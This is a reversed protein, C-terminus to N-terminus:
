EEYIGIVDDEDIVLHEEGDIDIATGAYWGFLITDEKNYRSGLSAGCCESVPGDGVTIITGICSAEKAQDPIKIVGEEPENRKVLLRPGIPKFMTKEKQKHNFIADLAETTKNCKACTINGYENITWGEPVVADWKDERSLDIANGTIRDFSTTGGDAIEHCGWHDCQYIINLHVPMKNETDKTPEFSTLFLASTKSIVNSAWKPACM